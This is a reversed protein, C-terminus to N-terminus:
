GAIRPDAHAPGAGAALAHTARQGLGRSGRRLFAIAPQREPRRTDRPHRRGRPWTGRRSTRIRRLWAPSALCTTTAPCRRRAHQSGRRSLPCPASLPHDIAHTRKAGTARPSDAPQAGLETTSTGPPTSLCRTGTAIRRISCNAPQQQIMMWVASRCHRAQGRSIRPARQIQAAFPALALESVEARFAHVLRYDVSDRRRRRAGLRPSSAFNISRRTKAYGCRQQLLQQWRTLFVAHDDLQIDLLNAPGFDARAHLDDRIQQARAGLDHGGNGLLALADRGVTRNNATWLRGEAPNEIRPYQAPAAWGTWGTDPLSWDAHVAASRYGARLPISNGAITWGIHGASDAVLLEAAAHGLDAGPGARRHVDPHAGAADTVNYGHPQGGIWALALPTGDTDKGMIPGWRTDEVHLSPTRRRQRPHTEDHNEITAWGEPVKYRAPRAPRAARSGLRALRRLQQHLGLRDPRQLRRGDGAHRSASASSMASGARHPRTPIACAPASGSTPVRLGLHMDNALMAAGSGTLAGAIPLVTAAPARHMSPQHSHLPSALPHGSPRMPQRSTACITYTPLPFLRHLRLSVRCHHKGTPIPPWCSIWWRAPCCPGCRHSICNANTAATM